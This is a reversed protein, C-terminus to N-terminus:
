GAVLAAAWGVGVPVAGIAVCPFCAMAGSRANRSWIIANLGILCGAVTTAIWVRGPRDTLWPALFAALLAALGLAAWCARRANTDGLAVALTRVGSQRDADIDPLSPAIQVAIVAAAGIPYMAFLGPDIADLSAWVWIPLLPLAILYPLWSWVTRKFWLSYAIGTGTGLACLLFPGPGFTLGLGTMVVLGALTMGWAGRVSVLGAPIPKDPKAVADLEADVLENVAGVALQGGFMAGLLRMMPGAGPWGGAAILAFAATAMMVVIIPVAHPLV